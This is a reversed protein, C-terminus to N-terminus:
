RLRSPKLPVWGAGAPSREEPTGPQRGGSDLKRQDGHRWVAHDENPVYAMRETTGDRPVTLFMRLLHSINLPLLILHLILVPYIAAEIGYVIFAVNSLAAVARLALMTHMCFTVLVLSCALYGIADVWMMKV